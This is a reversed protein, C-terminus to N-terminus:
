AAVSSRPTLGAVILVTLTMVLGIAIFVLSAIKAEFVIWSSAMLLGSIVMIYGVRRTVKQGRAADGSILCRDAKQKPVRNGFFAILLGLMAGIMRQGIDGSTFGTINTLTIGLALTIMLSAFNLNDYIEILVEKSCGRARYVTLILLLMVPMLLGGAPITIWKSPEVFTIAVSLALNLTMLSWAILKITRPKM